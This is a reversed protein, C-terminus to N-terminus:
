KILLQEIVKAFHEYELAHVKSAVMEPTDDSSVPCKAQFITQGEDYLENVYHITIGSESDHNEVVAEHVKMGFMGKGGYKPLLAPHINIITYNKLLNQPVLWLFGALVILDINRKQLLSLIEDTEYLTHRNFTFSPINLNRARELVYAKPNNSLICDVKVQSHSSFYEAIAQANTGSGSAFIAINKM